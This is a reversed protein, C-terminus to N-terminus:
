SNNKSIAKTMKKQIYVAVSIRQDYPAKEDVKCITGSFFTNWGNILIDRMIKSEEKPLMGIISDKGNKKLVVRILDKDFDVDKNAQDQEASYVKFYVEKGMEIDKDKWHKFANCELTNIVCFEKFFTGVSM